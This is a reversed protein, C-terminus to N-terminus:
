AGFEGSVLFPFSIKLAVYPFRNVITALCSSMNDLTLLLCGFDHVASNRVTWLVTIGAGCAAGIRAIFLM